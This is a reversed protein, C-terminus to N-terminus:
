HYNSAFLHRGASPFLFSKLNRANYNWVRYEKGYNSADLVCYQNFRYHAPPFEEYIIDFQICAKKVFGDVGKPQGGSVIILKDGFKEKLKFIFDKVKKRDEYIRSGVVAIKIIKEEIM